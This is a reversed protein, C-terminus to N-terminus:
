YHIKLQLKKAHDVWREVARDSPLVRALKRKANVEAMRAALKAPSRARLDKVTKVGSAQLLSSYDAGIGKIRMRDASNAWGLIRKEDFGTLGALRKREKPGKAADILSTTTRIGAQRLRDAVDAGVGLIKVPYTM